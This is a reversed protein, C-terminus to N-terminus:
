YKPVLNLSNYGLQLGCGKLSVEVATYEIDYHGAHFSCTMSRECAMLYLKHGKDTVLVRHDLPEMLM